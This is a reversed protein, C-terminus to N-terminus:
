KTKKEESKTNRKPMKCRRLAGVNLLNGIVGVQTYDEAQDYPTCRLECLLLQNM